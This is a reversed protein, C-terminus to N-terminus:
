FLRLISYIDDHHDFARLKIIKDKEIIEFTLVFSKLVHARRRNQLPFRLPKSQQPNELIRSIKKELADSLTKNKFCAKDIEKKCDPDIELSYTM